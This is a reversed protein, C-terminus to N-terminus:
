NSRGTTPIQNSNRPQPAPPPGGTTEGSQQGPPTVTLPQGPITAGSSQQDLATGAPGGPPLAQPDSPAAAADPQAPAANAAGPTGPVAGQIPSPAKVLQKMLVAIITQQTKTDPYVVGYFNEIKNLALFQSLSCNFRERSVKEYMVQIGQQNLASIMAAAKPNDNPPLMSAIFITSDSPLTSVRSTVPQARFLVNGETAGSGGRGDGQLGRASTHLAIIPQGGPRDWYRLFRQTFKASPGKQGECERTAALSFNRNPDQGDVEHRGGNEVAVITGGHVRVMEVATTFAADEDDYQVVWLPGSKQSNQIVQLIWHLGNEEFADYSVCLSGKELADRNRAFDFDMDPVERWPAPVCGLDAADVEAWPPRAPPRPLASGPRQENGRTPTGGPQAQALTDRLREAARVMHQVGDGVQSDLAHAASLPLVVGLILTGVLRCRLIM